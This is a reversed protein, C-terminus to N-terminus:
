PSMVLFMNGSNAYTFTLGFLAVSTCATNFTNVFSNSGATASATVGGVGQLTTVIGDTASTFDDVNGLASSGSAGTFTNTGVPTGHVRGVYGTVALADPFGGATSGTGPSVSLTTLSATGGSVSATLDLGLTGAPPRWVSVLWAVYWLTGATTTTPTSTLTLSASVDALTAVKWQM